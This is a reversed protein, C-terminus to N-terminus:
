VVKINHINFYIGKKKEDLNSFPISSMKFHPDWIPSKITAIEVDLKNLFPPFNTLLLKRRELPISERDRHFQDLIQKRHYKFVSRLLTKGFIETADYRQLSDCFTPVYCFM